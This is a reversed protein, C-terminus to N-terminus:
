RRTAAGGMESFFHEIEASNLEGREDLLAALREIKVWEDEVDEAARERLDRTLRRRADITLGRQSLIEAVRDLDDGAGQEAVCGAFPNHRFHAERGALLTLIAEDTEDLSLGLVSAESDHDAGITVSIPSSFGYRNGVVLHGAEHYAHAQRSGARHESMWMSVKEPNALGSFFWQGDDSLQVVFLLDGSDALEMSLSHFINDVHHGSSLIWIWTQATDAILTTPRQVTVVEGGHDELIGRINDELADIREKLAHNHTGLLPTFVVLFCPLLSSAM